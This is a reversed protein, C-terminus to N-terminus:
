ALPFRWARDDIYMCAPQKVNSVDYILGHLGVGDLWKWIWPWHSPPRATLIHVEAGENVYHFVLDIGAQISRGLHPSPWTAEALVGDFDVSVIPLGPDLPPYTM